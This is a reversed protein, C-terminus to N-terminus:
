WRREYGAGLLGILPLHKNVADNPGRIWAVSNPTLCVPSRGCKLRNWSEVVPHTPSLLFFPSLSLLFLHLRGEKLSYVSMQVSAARSSDCRKLVKAAPLFAPQRNLAKGFLLQLVDQPRNMMVSTVSICKAWHKCDGKLVLLHLKRSFNLRLQIQWMNTILGLDPNKQLSSHVFLNPSDHRMRYQGRQSM